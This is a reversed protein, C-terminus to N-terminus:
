GEELRVRDGDRLAKSSSVIVRDDSQLSGSVAAKQGGQDEVTVDVRQATLERGLVTETERLVLVYSKSGDSHLASLPLCANYNDTKQTITATAAMGAEGKDGPILMTVQSVGPSGALASVSEVTVDRLVASQGPLSVMAPDGRAIYDLDDGSVEAVLRFGADRRAVLAAAEGGTLQGPSVSLSAVVGEAPSLVQGGGDALARLELLQYEQLKYDIMTIELQRSVSWDLELKADEVRRRAAKWADERADEAAEAVQDKSQYDAKLRQYEQYIAQEEEFDPLELSAGPPLGKEWRDIVERHERYYARMAREAENRAKRADSLDEYSGDIADAYDEGARQSSLQDKKDGLQANLSLEELQLRLKELAAEQERLAKELSALSITFLSDGQAVVSGQRVEVSEVLLGSLAIVPAQRIAELRGDAQITHTIASRSPKQVTVRPVTLADLSRSLFTLLLMLLAFAALARLAREQLSRAPGPQWGTLEKIKQIM